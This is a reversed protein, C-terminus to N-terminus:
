LIYSQDWIDIDQYRKIWNILCLNRFALDTTEVRAPNREAIDSLLNEYEPCPNDPQNVRILNMRSACSNLLLAGAIMLSMIVILGNRKLNM